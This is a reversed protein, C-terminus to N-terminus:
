GQGAAWSGDPVATQLWWPAATTGDAELGLVVVDSNGRIEALLSGPNTADTLGWLGVSTNNVLRLGLQEARAQEGREHLTRILFVLGHDAGLAEANGAFEEAMQLEGRTAHFEVLTAYADGARDELDNPGQEDEPQEEEQPPSFRQRHWLEQLETVLATEGMGHLTDLLLPTYAPLDLEYDQDGFLLPLEREASLRRKVLSRVKGHNGLHAHILALRLPDRVLDPRLRNLLRRVEAQKEQSSVRLELLTILGEADGAEMAALALQEAQDFDGVSERFSVLDALVASRAGPPLASILQEAEDPYDLDRWEVIASFGEHSGLNLARRAVSEAGVKDGAQELRSALPALAKPDGLEVAQWLLDIQRQDSLAERGWSTAWMRLAMTEGANTARFVLEEAAEFAKQRACHAALATIRRGAVKGGAVEYLRLGIGLRLRSVASDAMRLRSDAPVNSEAVASWFKAPPFESRRLLRGKHDLVDDLRYGGTEQHLIPGSAKGSRLLDAVATDFWTPSDAPPRDTETLYCRAANRLFIESVIEDHGLRRADMAAHIIAREAATATDLREVLDVAGALYQTVGVGTSHTAAEALRKDDSQRAAALDSPTFRDPVRIHAGDLLRRAVVFDDPELDAPKRTLQNWYERWLTGWVLVPGRTQDGLLERLGNAIEARTDAEPDVMYRQAENLWVVTKPGVHPLEDLFRRPPLPNVAPWIRWGAAALSMGDVRRHLAEYLARTKGSASPGVLVAIGSRAHPGLAERVQEDLQHDHTRVLYHPPAEAYAGTGPLAAHVELANATLGKVPATVPQRDLRSLAGAEAAALLPEVASSDLVHHRPVYLKWTRGQTREIASRTVLQWYCLRSTLDVLVVAVPLSYELWYAFHDSDARFWWGGDTPSRFYSSGSKIQLALLRGLVNGDGVAEIHADIGYDEVPQERFVWDLHQEVAQRVQTVGASATKASEPRRM